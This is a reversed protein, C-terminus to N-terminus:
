QISGNCISKGLFKPKVNRYKFGGVLRALECKQLMEPLANM